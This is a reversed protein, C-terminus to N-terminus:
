AAPYPEAGSADMRMTVAGGGRKRRLFNRAADSTTASAHMHTATTEKPNLLEATSLSSSRDLHTLMVRASTASKSFTHHKAHRLKLNATFFTAGRGRPLISSATRLILVLAWSLTHFLNSLACTMICYHSSRSPIGIIQNTHRKEM